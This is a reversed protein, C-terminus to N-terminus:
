DSTHQTEETERNKEHQLRTAGLAKMLQQRSTVTRDYVVIILQHRSNWSASFVGPLARVLSDVSEKQEMFGCVPIKVTMYRSRAVATTSTLCLSLALFLSLLGCPLSWHHTLRSKVAFFVNIVNLMRMARLTKLPKQMNRVKSRAKENKVAKM